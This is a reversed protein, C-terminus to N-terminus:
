LNTKLGRLNIYSELIFDKASNNAIPNVALYVRMMKTESLRAPSPLPNNVTDVPWDGNYYYFIPTSLNQINDAIVKIKENASPYTAPTGVPDIVGKSLVTGNLFYRVRETADDTDIDSYFIIQQDDALELPYAGNDGARTNRLERVMISIASNAGDVKTYNRYAVIQNQSIIYQLSVFAGGLLVLVSSAVLIEILTFGSKITLKNALKIKM